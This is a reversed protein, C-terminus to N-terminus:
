EKMQLVQIWFEQEDQKKKRQAAIEEDLQKERMQRIQHAKDRIEFVPSTLLSIPVETTEDDYHLRWTLYLVDTEDATGFDLVGDAGDNNNLACSIASARENLEKAAKIVARVVDLNSLDPNSLDLQEELEDDWTIEFLPVDAIRKWAIVREPDVHVPKDKHDIFGGTEDSTWGYSVQGEHKCCYPKMSALRLKYPFRSDACVCLYNNVGDFVDSERSNQKTCEEVPFHEQEFENFGPFDPLRGKM